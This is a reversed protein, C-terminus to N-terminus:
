TPLPTSVQPYWTENDDIGICRVQHRGKMKQM